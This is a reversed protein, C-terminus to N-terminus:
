GAVMASLRATGRVSDPIQQGNMRILMPKYDFTDVQSIAGLMHLYVVRKARARFHGTGLLGHNLSSASATQALAVGALSLTGNLLFSRRGIRRVEDLPHSSEDPLKSM